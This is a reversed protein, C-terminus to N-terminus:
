SVRGTPAAGPHKHELRKSGQTKRLTDGPRTRWRRHMWVWQDPHERVYREIIRSWADTNHLIDAARDGTRRIPVPEDVIIRHSRGQRVIRAPVLPAGSKMAILVPATPTYAPRGFFDVFVGDLKRVDQDALIGVVGNSKLTKLIERPSEDRYFVRFGKSLRLRLLLKEYKEYYVRRAVVGGHYGMIMFYTPILEWNGLHGTIIIIGKGKALERDVIEKGEMRVFGKVREADLRHYLALEAMNRGLNVFLERGIREREAASKEGGYAIALNDLTKRRERRLLRWACAGGREFVAYLARAPLLRAIGLLFLAGYYLFEKRLRHKVRKKETM